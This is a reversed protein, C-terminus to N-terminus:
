RISQYRKRDHWTEPHALGNTENVRAERCSLVDDINRITHEAQRPCSQYIADIM